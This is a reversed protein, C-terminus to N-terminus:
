PSQQAHHEECLKMAEAKDRVGHKDGLVNNWDETRRHAQYLWGKADRSAHISYRKCTTLLIWVGGLARTPASEWQLLVAPTPAPKAGDPLAASVGEGSRGEVKRAEAEAVRRALRAM